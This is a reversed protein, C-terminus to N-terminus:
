YGILFEIFIYLFFHFNHIAPRTEWVIIINFVGVLERLKVPCKNPHIFNMQLYGNKTVITIQDSGTGNKPSLPTVESGACRASTGWRGPCASSCSSWWLIGAGNKNRSCWWLGGSPCCPERRESKGGGVATQSGLEFTVIPQNLFARCAALLQHRLARQPGIGVEVHEDGLDVRRAVLVLRVLLAHQGLEALRVRVRGQEVRDLLAHLQLRLVPRLADALVRGVLGVTCGGGDKVFFFWAFKSGM